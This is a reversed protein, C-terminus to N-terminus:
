EYIKINNDRNVHEDLIDLFDLNWSIITKVSHSKSKNSRHMFHCPFFLIDGEKVDISFGDQLNDPYLFETNPADDPLELYYAGTYNRAHIHWGHTQKHGYQQYWLKSLQIDKYGLANAFYKLQGNFIDAYKAAWPRDWNDALPWDSKLLDDGFYKDKKQFSSDAAKNILSLLDNKIHDHFKM